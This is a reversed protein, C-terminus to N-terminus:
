QPCPAPPRGRGREEPTMFLEVPHDKDYIIVNGRRGHMPAPGRCNDPICVLIGNDTEPEHQEELKEVRKVFRDISM